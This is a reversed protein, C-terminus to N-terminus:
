NQIDWFLNSTTELTDRSIKDIYTSSLEFSSNPTFKFSQNLSSLLSHISKKGSVGIVDGNKKCVSLFEINSPIKIAYRICSYQESNDEQIDFENARERRSFDFSRLLPVISDISFHDYVVTDRIIGNDSILKVQRYKINQSKLKKTYEILDFITSNTPTNDASLCSSLILICAIYYGLIRM